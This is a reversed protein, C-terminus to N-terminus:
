RQQKGTGVTGTILVTVVGDAAVKLVSLDCSAGDQERVVGTRVPGTEIAQQFAPVEVLVRRGAPLHVLRRYDPFAHDLCQGAAEGEEALLVVRDGDVILRVSAAGNLLARMADALASPLIVQVRALEGISRM